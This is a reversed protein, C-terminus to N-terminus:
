TRLEIKTLLHLGRHLNTLIQPKTYNAICMNNSKNVYKAENLNSITLVQPKTYAQM